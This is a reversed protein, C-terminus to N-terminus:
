GTAGGTAPQSAAAPRSLQEELERCLSYACALTAVRRLGQPHCMGAANRAGVLYGGALDRFIQCHVGAEAM